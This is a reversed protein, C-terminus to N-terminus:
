TTEEKVWTTKHSPGDGFTCMPFTDGVKITIKSATHTQCHYQGASVCKEGTRATM